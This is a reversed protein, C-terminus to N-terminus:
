VLPGGTLYTLPPQRCKFYLHNLTQAVPLSADSLPLYVTYMTYLVCLHNFPGGTRQTALPTTTTCTTSTTCITCTLPGSTALSPMTCAYATCAHTTTITCVYATCVDIVLPLVYMSQVIQADYNSSRIQTLQMTYFGLQIHVCAFLYVVCSLPRGSKHHGLISILANHAGHYHM